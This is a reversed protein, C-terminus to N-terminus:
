KKLKKNTEYYSTYREKERKYAVYDLYSPLKYLYDLPNIPNGKYIVEFHLHPGTSRGTSGIYGIIEGRKVYQGKKVLNKSNHAYKTQIRPIKPIAPYNHDIIICHGYKGKWGSFIVAGEQIAYIPTSSPAAIDIGNHFKWHKTFPDIRSGFPSSIRGKVPGATKHKTWSYCPSVCFICFFYFLIAAPILFILKKM